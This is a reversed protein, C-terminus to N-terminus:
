KLDMNSQLLEQIMPSGVDRSKTPHTINSARSKTLQKSRQDSEDLHSDSMRRHHRQGEGDHEGDTILSSSSASPSSSSSSSKNLFIEHHRNSDSHSYTNSVARKLRTSSAMPM